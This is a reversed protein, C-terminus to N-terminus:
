SNEGTGADNQKTYTKASVNRLEIYKIGTLLEVKEFNSLRKRNKKIRPTASTMGGRHLLDDVYRLARIGKLKLLKHM